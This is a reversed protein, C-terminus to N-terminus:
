CLLSACIVAKSQNTKRSMSHEMLHLIPTCGGFVHSAMCCLNPGHCINSYCNASPNYISRLHQVIYGLVLVRPFAFFPSAFLLYNSKWCCVACIKLQIHNFSPCIRARNVGYAVVKAGICRELAHTPYKENQHLHSVVWCFLSYQVQELTTGMLFRENGSIGHKATLNATRLVIM